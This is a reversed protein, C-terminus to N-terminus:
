CPTGKGPDAHVRGATQKRRAVFIGRDHQPIDTAVPRDLREFRVGRLDTRDAERHVSVVQQATGVVVLDDERIQM